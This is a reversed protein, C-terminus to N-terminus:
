IFGEPKKTERAYKLIALRFREENKVFGCAYAVAASCYSCDKYSNNTREADRWIQEGYEKILSKKYM